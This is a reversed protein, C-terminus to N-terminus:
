THRALGARLQARREDRLAGKLRPLESAALVGASLACVLVAAPWAALGREALILVLLGSTITALLARRALLRRWTLWAAVLVLTSIAFLGDVAVTVITVM